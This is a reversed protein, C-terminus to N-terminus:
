RCPSPGPLQLARYDHLKWGESQGTFRARVWLVYAGPSTPLEVRLDVQDGAMATFAGELKEEVVDPRIEEPARGLTAFRRLCDEQSSSLGWARSMTELGGDAPPDPLFTDFGHKELAELILPEPDGRLDYKGEPLSTQILITRGNLQVPPLARPKLSVGEGAAIRGLAAAAASELSIRDLTRRQETSAAGLYALLGTTLAGGLIALGVTFSM